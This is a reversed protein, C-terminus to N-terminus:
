IPLEKEFEMRSWLDRNVESLPDTEWRLSLVWRLWLWQYPSHEDDKSINPCPFYINLIVVRVLPSGM